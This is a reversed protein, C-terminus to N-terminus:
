DIAVKVDLHPVAPPWVTDFLSALASHGRDLALEQATKGQRDRITRDAGAELLLTINTFMAQSLYRTCCIMHLATYGTRFNVSNLKAGAEILMRVKNPSHELGIPYNGNSDPTNLDAGSAILRQYMTDSVGVLTAYTLTAIGSLYINVPRGAAIYQELAREKRHACIRRLAKEHNPESSGPELTYPESSGLEITDPELNDSELTDPELTHESDCDDDLCYNPDGEVPKINAPNRYTNM